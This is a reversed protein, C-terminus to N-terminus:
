RLGQIPTYMKAVWRPDVPPAQLNVLGYCGGYTADKPLEPLTWLLRKLM